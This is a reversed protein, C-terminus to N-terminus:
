AAPEIGLSELWERAYRLRRERDYAFWKDLLNYKALVDKFKRFAGRGGIAGAVRGRIEEDDVTRIFDEMYRYAEYSEIPEIDRYRDGGEDIRRALEREKRIWEPEGAEVSSGESEGAEEQDDLGLGDADDYEDTMYESGVMLVEGTQTDFFWLLESDQSQSLADVLEEMQVAVKRLGM